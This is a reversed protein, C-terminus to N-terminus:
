TSLDLRTRKKAALRQRKMRNKLVKRKRKKSASLPADKLDSEFKKTGKELKGEKPKAPSAPNPAVFLNTLDALNAPAPGISISYTEAITELHRIDEKEGYGGVFSIAVGRRGFRGSRGIRHLYVAATQPLDYNVVLGVTQVDIGRAWIDTTILVRSCIIVYKM